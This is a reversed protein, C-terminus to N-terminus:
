GFSAQGFVEIGIIDTEVKELLPHFLEQHRKQDAPMLGAQDM